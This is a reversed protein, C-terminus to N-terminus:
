NEFFSLFSKNKKLIPDLTELPDKFQTRELSIWGGSAVGKGWIKLIVLISNNRREKM